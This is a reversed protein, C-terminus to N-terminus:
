RPESGALVEAARGAVEEPRARLLRAVGIEEIALSACAVGYALAEGLKALGGGLSLWRALMGGALADGAGTTDLVPRSLLAPVAVQERELYVRAGGPGAKLCIGALGSNQRFRDPHDPDGGLARLEGQNLFFWDCARILRDAEAPAAKLYSSMADGALLGASSLGEAVEVQLSPRMSGVFAWGSFAEPLRPRWHDYIHDQSGLDVNAGAAQRAHWRYTPADLVSLGRLDVQRPELLSRLLSEEEKGVAAVLAVPMLLSAALAFYLASGGLEAEVLGWPGELRDLAISGAVLLRTAAM